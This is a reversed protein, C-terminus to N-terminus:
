VELYGHCYLFVDMPYTSPQYPTNDAIQITIALKSNQGARFACGVGFCVTESLLKSMLCNRESADLSNAYNLAIDQYPPSDGAGIAYVLPADVGDVTFELRNISRLYECMNDDKYIKNRDAQLIFSCSVADYVTPSTVYIQSNLSVVTQTTLYCTRFVTRPIPVELVEIWSLQVNSIAFSLALIYDDATVAPQPKSCYFSEVASGLTMLLKMQEFKSQPLDTNSRNLACVPKFSFPIGLSPESPAGLLVNTQLGKLEVAHESSSTLEELSAEAQTKMGVFRPYFSINELIRDNAVSSINKVVGHAGVFPNMFVMDEPTVPVFAGASAVTQKTVLLNGVLRFSNKKVSRGRSPKCTFDLQDYPTYTSKINSPQALNYFFVM